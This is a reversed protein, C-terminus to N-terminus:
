DRTQRVRSPNALRSGNRGEDLIVLYIPSGQRLIEYAADRDSVAGSLSHGDTIVITSSRLAKHKERATKMAEAVLSVLPAKNNSSIGSLAKELKGEDAAFDRVADGSAKVQPIVVDDTSRIQNLFGWAAQRAMRKMPESDSIVLALSFSLPSESRAFAEITQKVGDEKITIEHRTLDPVPRNDSGIVSVNIVVLDTQIRTDGREGEGSAKLGLASSNACHLIAGCAPLAFISGLLLLRKM